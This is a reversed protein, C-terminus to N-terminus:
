ENKISMLCDHISQKKRLSDWIHKEVQYRDGPDNCLFTVQCPETQGRRWTRHIFQKYAIFSYDSTYYIIRHCMQINAAKGKSCQLILICHQRHSLITQFDTISDTYAIKHKKLEDTIAVFDEQFRYAIICPRIKCENVVYDLKPNRFETIKFTKREVSDPSYYMFGNVAQQAKQIAIAKQVTSEYEGCQLIGDIAQKYTETMPVTFSKFSVTMPPMDDKEDYEWFSCANAYVNAMFKTGADNLHTPKQFMGFPGYCMEQVCYAEKFAHPRINGCGAVNLNHFICWPEIDNNGALTGTMGIVYETRKTLFYVLKAYQTKARTVGSRLSQCEDCVIVDWKKNMIAEKVSGIAMRDTVLYTHKPLIGQSEIEKRWMTKICTADSLILVNAEGHKLKDIQILCHIVPYSKGKGPEYALVYHKHKMIMREDREQEPLRYKEDYEKYTIM